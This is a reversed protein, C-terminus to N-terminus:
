VVELRFALESAAAEPLPIREALRDTTRADIKYDEGMVVSFWRERDIVVRYMKEDQTESIYPLYINIPQGCREVKAGIRDIRGTRQELTSPNWCLDHHIVHRCNLHLDVGEAMVSSAVLIEPYFPTNFTLMLRQRTEQKTTGNVLRVNPMLREPRDGQLEDLTYATTMDSGLYSGTQIGKVADIYRIRDEEGCHEILFGFFHELLKRFTLGSSDPTDMAAHMDDETLRGLKLPFFRVLFSATRANRRVIQLLTSKYEKLEPYKHLIKGAEEDCARRVPSGETFFRKGIRVLEETVESPDCGLKEAALSEIHDKIVESIRQRLTKGTAIYHCFVVVKEGSKWLDLTKRVTASIKPHSLSSLSDGRPVLKELRDLYWRSADTIQVEHTHHHDDDIDTINSPKNKKSLLNVRRTKLFAEYSSALGEAFVPRSNPAHSTARAAILFPLLSEGSISLGGAHKGANDNIIMEGPMRCRRNIGKHPEPLLRPKLHRIVWPQLLKEANRMKDKTASYCRLVQDTTPAHDPTFKLAAWWKEIDDYSKESITLDEKRLRGWSADLTVASEQAADLADRLDQLQRKCGDMGCDPAQSTAWCIGSFRELVSCLEAHGLQFPTATLFIMRRFVGGLPGRTIEEADDQAEKVHFLSALRTQPNKLHHAEDLILLPLRLRMQLVCGQWMSRMAKKIFNRATRLNTDFNMSRRLPIEKLAEYIGDTDIDPLIDCLAKPVPDDDTDPNNDNEPDIEWKNLLELWEAPDTKLLHIWIEQGYQEVWRMSLLDGLIRSVARRMKKVGHKGKLAQRILALMVWKDTLTRSMAGHTVFIISKRREPPDDLLKLFEVVREAKAWKIKEALEPPLCKERFLEFDRPWKEKLSSPVMIIVPKKGRNELAVSVAAALAVFTKGMGVEDALIIGPIDSLRQLIERATKEQRMADESSIRGEVHLNIDKCFPVYPKM